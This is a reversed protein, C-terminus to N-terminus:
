GSGLLELAFLKGVIIKHIEFGRAAEGGFERFGGGDDDLVVIGAAGGFLVREELGVAFGEGAIGDGSEASDEGEVADDVGGGGFFDGLKEGFADGGGAEVFFGFGDEASLFIQARSSSGGLPRSGSLSSWSFRM